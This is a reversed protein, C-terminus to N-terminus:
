NEYRLEVPSRWLLFWCREDKALLSIVCVTCDLFLDHPSRRWLRRSPRGNAPTLVVTAQINKDSVQGQAKWPLGLFRHSYSYLFLFNVVLKNSDEEIWDSIQDSTMNIRTACIWFHMFSPSYVTSVGLKVFDESNSEPRKKIPFLRLLESIPLLPFTRSNSHSLTPWFSHTPVTHM